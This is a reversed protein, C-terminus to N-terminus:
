RNILYIFFCLVATIVLIVLPRLKEWRNQQIHEKRKSHISTQLTEDEAALKLLQDYIKTSYKLPMHTINNLLLHVIQENSEKDEFSNLEKIVNDTVLSLVYEQLLVMDAKYINMGSIHRNLALSEQIIFHPTIAKNRKRNHIAQNFWRQQLYHNKKGPNTLVEYAEKIENFQTAAYQDGPTKDPHYLMALRRYAKKIEPLTANPEIELIKYYDKM